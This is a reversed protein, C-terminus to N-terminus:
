RCRCGRALEPQDFAAVQLSFLAAPGMMGGLAALLPVGAQRPSSLAGGPLTAELIEKTALACFFVMGIDNVAFHLAHAFQEYAEPAANAWVLALVTGLVLLVSNEIVFAFVGPKAVATM